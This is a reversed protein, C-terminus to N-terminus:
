SSTQFFTTFDQVDFVNGVKACSSSPATTSHDSTNPSSPASAAPGVLAAGEPDPAEDEPNGEAPAEDLPDRLTRGLNAYLPACRRFTNSATTLPTICFLPFLTKNQNRQSERFWVSRALNQGPENPAGGMGFYEPSVSVLEGDYFTTKTSRNRTWAGPVAPLRQTATQSPREQPGGGM